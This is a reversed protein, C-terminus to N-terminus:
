LVPREDRYLALKWTYADGEITDRVRWTNTGIFVVDRYAPVAVDSRKVTLVAKTMVSDGRSDEDINEEYEVHASIDSGKYTVTDVLDAGFWKGTAHTKADTLKM